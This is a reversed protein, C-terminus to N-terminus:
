NAGSDNTRNHQESQQLRGARLKKTVLLLLIMLIFGGPLVLLLLWLLDKKSVKLRLNIWYERVKRSNPLTM